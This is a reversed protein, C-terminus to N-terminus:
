PNVVSNATFIAMDYVTTYGGGAGHDIVTAAKIPNVAINELAQIEMASIKPEAYIKKM